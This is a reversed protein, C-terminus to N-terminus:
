SKELVIGTASWLVVAVESTVGNAESMPQFYLTMLPTKYLRWYSKVLFCHIPLQILAYVYIDYRLFLVVQKLNHYIVKFNNSHLCRTGKYSNTYFLEHEYWKLNKIQQILTGRKSVGLLYRFVSKSPICFM